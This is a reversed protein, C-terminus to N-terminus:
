LKLKSLVLASVLAVPIALLLYNVAEQSENVGDGVIATWLRGITSTTEPSIGVKSGGYFAGFNLSLQYLITKVSEKIYEQNQAAIYGVAGVCAYKLYPKLSGITSM